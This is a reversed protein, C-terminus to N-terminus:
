VPTDEGDSTMVEKIKKLSPADVWVGKGAPRWIKSFVRYTRGRTARTHWCIRFREGTSKLGLEVTFYPDGASDRDIPQVLVSWGHQAAFLALSRAARVEEPITDLGRVVLAM